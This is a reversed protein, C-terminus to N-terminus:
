HVKYSYVHTEILQSHSPSSKWYSLRHLPTLLHHDHTHLSQVVVFPCEDCIWWMPSGREDVGNCYAIYSYQVVM